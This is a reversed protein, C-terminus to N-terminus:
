VASVTSGARHRKVVDEIMGILLHQTGVQKGETTERLVGIVGGQDTRLDQVFSDDNMHRRPDALVQRTDEASATILDKAELKMG